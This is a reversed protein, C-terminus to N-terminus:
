RLTSPRELVLGINVSMGVAMFFLGLLLGKFPEINSELEHRFESDALLVGALFAGLAMSLGVLEMLMATGTVVFLAAATFIEQSRASAVIRLFPRMALRGGAIVAVIVIVAKLVQPWIDKGEGIEGGAGILPIVALMPIVALDQFLLTSFSARGYRASLEQKEALIQLAFATSSLALALGAVVAPGTELGFAMGAATLIAGTLVVQASGLGFIPKRLSWLRTPQLELGIIFLLLVIGFEAFHLVAGVDGGQELVWPAIIVGAALYGLVSGFGLRKFLPVAILAAGMFIVAQQVFSM